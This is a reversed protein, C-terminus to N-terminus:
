GKWQLMDYTQPPKDAEGVSDTQCSLPLLPPHHDVKNYYMCTVIARQATETVKITHFVYDYNM